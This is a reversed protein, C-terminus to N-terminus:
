SGNRDSSLRWGSIFKTGEVKQRREKCGKHRRDLDGSVLM